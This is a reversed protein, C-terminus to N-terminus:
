AEVGTAILVPPIPPFRRVDYVKFETGDRNRRHQPAVHHAHVRVADLDVLLWRSLGIIQGDMAHGYFFWDAWGDEFVKQYETRAGTPRYSRFTIDWPYREAFGSRRVRCAIRMDRAKLVLLDTAENQDREISAQQLLLPGVIGKIEDLYQLQWDFDWQFENAPPEPIDDPPNDWFTM